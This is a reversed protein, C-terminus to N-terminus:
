FSRAAALHASCLALASDQQALAVADFNESNLDIERPWPSTPANPQGLHKPHISPQHLTPGASPGTTAIDRPSRHLLYFGNCGVLYVKGRKDQTAHGMTAFHKYNSWEIVDFPRKVQSYLTNYTAKLPACVYHAQKGVIAAASEKQYGKADRTVTSGGLVLGDILEPIMWCRFYGASQTM